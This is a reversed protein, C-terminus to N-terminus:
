EKRHPDTIEALRDCIEIASLRGLHSGYYRLADILLPDRQKALCHLILLNTAAAGEAMAMRNLAIKLNTQDTTMGGDYWIASLNAISSVM